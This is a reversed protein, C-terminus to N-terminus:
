WIIWEAGFQSLLPLCSIFQWVLVCDNVEHGWTTKFHKTSKINLSRRCIDKAIFSYIAVFCCLISSFFTQLVNFICMNAAKAMLMCESWERRECEKSCVSFLNSNCFARSIHFYCAFCLRELSILYCELWSYLKIRLFIKMMLFVLFFSFNEFVSVLSCSLWKHTATLKMASIGLEVSTCALASM